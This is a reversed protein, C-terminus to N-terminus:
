FEMKETIRGLLQAVFIRLLPRLRDIDAPSIVLYLNVPAEHNM